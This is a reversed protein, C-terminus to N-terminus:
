NATSPLVKSLLLQWRNKKRWNSYMNYEAKADNYITEESFDEAYPMEPENLMAMLHLEAEKFTQRSSVGKVETENNFMQPTSIDVIGWIKKDKYTNFDFVPQKASSLNFYSGVMIYQFDMIESFIFDKFCYVPKNLFDKVAIKRCKSRLADNDAINLLNDSQVVSIVASKGTDYNHISYYNYNVSYRYTDSSVYEKEFAGYTLLMGNQFRHIVNLEKGTENGDLDLVTYFIDDANKALVYNDGHYSVEIYGTQKVEGNGYVFLLRNNYSQRTRFNM